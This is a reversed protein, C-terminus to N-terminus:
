SGTLTFARDNQHANNQHHGKQVHKAHSGYHREYRHYAVGTLQLGIHQQTTCKNEASADAEGGWFLKEKQKTHHYKHQEKDGQQELRHCGIRLDTERQHALVANAPPQNFPIQVLWIRPKQRTM